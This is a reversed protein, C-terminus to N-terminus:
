FLFVDYDDLLSSRKPSLLFVVVVFFCSSTDTRLYVNIMQRSVRITFLVVKGKSSQTNNKKTEANAM